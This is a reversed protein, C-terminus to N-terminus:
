RTRRALVRCLSALGAAAPGLPEIARLADRELREVEARSGEVGLVAPYTLKGSAADKRTRKGAVHEPQEVDILDDVIQFMLGTASGFATVADLVPGPGAGGLMAGMRCAARILGGTKNGHVLRVREAASLSEPVGGLTDYVQGAIMASTGATLEACLAQALTPPAERALVDFALALLADGALIAMAEGAFRHLTARGRRLDDDDLAPLDDHILSFTHVFEVAVGAPLSREGPGGAAACSHWALLPRVRKGGGELAYRLADLLAAPLARTAVRDLLASEIVPMPSFCDPDPM